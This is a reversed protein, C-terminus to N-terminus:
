LSGSAENSHKCSGVMYQLQLNIHIIKRYKSYWLNYLMLHYHSVHISFIFPSPPFCDIRLWPVISATSLIFRQTDRDVWMDDLHRADEARVVLSRILGSHDAV